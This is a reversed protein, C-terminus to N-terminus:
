LVHAAKNKEENLAWLIRVVVTWFFHVLPKRGSRTTADVHNGREANGTKRMERASTAISPGWCKCLYAMLHTVTKPQNEAYFFILVSKDYKITQLFFLHEDDNSQIQNICIWYWREVLGKHILLWIQIFSLPWHYWLTIQHGISRSSRWFSSRRDSSKDLSYYLRCSFLFTM